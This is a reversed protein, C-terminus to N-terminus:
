TNTAAYRLAGNVGTLRDTAQYATTPLQWLAYDKKILLNWGRKIGVTSYGVPIDEACDIYKLTVDFNMTVPAGEKSLAIPIPLSFQNLLPSVMRRFGVFENLQVLGITGPMFVGFQNAAWASASHIDHYYNFQGAAASNNMSAYRTLDPIGAQIMAANINGNGVIIPTDMGENFQYDNLLKTYGESFLNSTNDDNFNVTTATNAGTVANIGWVNAALLDQDIKAILGPMQSMLAALHERMFATPAGGMAVSQSAENCYKAITENDIHIGIKATDVADIEMESYAPIVDIDCNDEDSVIDTTSRKYYKLRLNKTHGEANNLTYPDGMPTTQVGQELLMKTFGAPTIKTEPTNQGTVDKMHMLIAECYGLAM